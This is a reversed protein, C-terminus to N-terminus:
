RAASGTARTNRVSPRVGGEDPHNTVPDAARRETIRTSDYAEGHATWGIAPDDDGGGCGDHADAHPREERQAHEEDRDLARHAPTAARDRRHRQEVPDRHTEAREEPAREGI